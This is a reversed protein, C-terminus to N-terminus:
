ITEVEEVKVYEGRKVALGLALLELFVDTRSERRESWFIEEIAEHYTLPM